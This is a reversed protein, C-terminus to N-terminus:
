RKEAERKEAITNNGSGWHTPKVETLIVKVTDVPAGIAEVAADTLGRILARLQEDSRGEVLSVQIIPM